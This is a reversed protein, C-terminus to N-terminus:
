FDKRSMVASGAATFVAIYLVCVVAFAAYGSEIIQQPANSNMGYAMLSYPWIHGFGKALFVLGSLGGAFAIGVPLAFSRIFISLMLQVAATVTGGLTGFLCWIMISRYPLAATIGALKGSIIFLVCIWVESILIMMSATLLKSVFISAKNVPLTLLKNWNHNNHEIRMIYACYVGLMIPLFFYCTFLTHQTWLSYWESQLIEINGMYNVTGLLAPIVPMILFAGWVPSRKLKMREAKLLKLIM